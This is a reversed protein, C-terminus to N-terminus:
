SGKEKVTITGVDIVGKSGDPVEIDVVIDLAPGLVMQYKGPALGEAFFRGGSNTFVLVPKFGERGKARVEGGLL